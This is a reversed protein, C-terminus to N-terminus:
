PKLLSKGVFSNFNLLDRYGGTSYLNHGSARSSGEDYVNNLFDKTFSDMDFYKYGSHLYNSIGRNSVAINNINIKGEAILAGIRQATSEPSGYKLYINKIENAANELDIGKGYKGVNETEQETLGQQAANLSAQSKNVGIQSVFLDYQKQVNKIEEDMRRLEKQNMKELFGFKQKALEYSQRAMDINAKHQQIELDRLEPLRESAKANYELAKLSYPFSKSVNDITQRRQETEARQADLATFVREDYTKVDKEAKTAEAKEKRLAALGRLVGLVDFNLSSLFSTDMQPPTPASAGQMTVPSISGNQTIEGAAMAAAADSLGAERYRQMMRQPSSEYLAREYDEVNYKHQIAMNERNLDNQEYMLQQQQEYVMKQLAKSSAAAISAGGVSGLLQASAQMLGTSIDSINDAM